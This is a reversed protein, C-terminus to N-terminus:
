KCKSTFFYLKEVLFITACIHLHASITILKFYSITKSFDPISKQSIDNVNEHRLDWSARWYWQAFLPRMRLKESDTRIHPFVSWLFVSYPCKERLTQDYDQSQFMNIVTQDNQFM